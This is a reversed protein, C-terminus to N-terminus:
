SRASPTGSEAVGVSNAVHFWGANAAPAAALSLALVVLLASKSRSM